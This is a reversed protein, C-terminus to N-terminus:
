LGADGGNYVFRSIEPSKVAIAGQYALVSAQLSPSFAAPFAYRAAQAAAFEASNVRALQGASARYQAGSLLALQPIRESGPMSLHCDLAVQTECKVATGLGGEIVPIGYFHTLSDCLIRCDEPCCVTLLQVESLMAKCFSYVAEQTNAWLALRKGLLGRRRIASKAVDAFRARYLWEKDFVAAGAEEAQEAFPFGEAFLLTDFERESFVRYLRAEIDRERVFPVEAHCLIDPILARERVLPPPLFLM